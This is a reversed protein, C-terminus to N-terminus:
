VRSALQWKTRTYAIRFGTREANRQSGSGAEAAMSALDCGHDLAYRMRAQLLASQLGRRRMEPVTSSGGFLAVGEHMCLVAAAGPKGDLEALFYVSQRRSASIKGFQLFFDTLEPHDGTWGKTSIETWLQAEEQGIIRVKIHNNTEGALNEVPRYLVSSLEIPRYNRACLLDLAAIGALPSVEHLVPAGHDLFFREIVNLSAESLEEFIGLGFTQTVPSDIGDFVAYAGAYEIWEAGSDPFLRRRAEAFQVCASGEARELRRSLGIDAFQM